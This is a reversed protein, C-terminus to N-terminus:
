KPGETTQIWKRIFALARMESWYRGEHNFNVFGVHGGYRKIELTVDPNRRCEDVPYCGGALFPDDQANVILTPVRIHELWPRSSCKTWYDRAGAFGHIPATYRDDFQEFTRIRHYQADNLAEPYRHQKARIKLHLSKLFNKMYLANAPKALAAAADTLDCPASFMVACKVHEPVDGACRGLYLLSLNAGMSFGVLVITEYTGVSVARAIVHHLDDTVGNHYMRLLRNPEGSCGRYNWALGDVKISNLARVMGLMYPRHTNGELGHSLIALTRGGVCSWDLDLFDGDRTDIRERTYSIDTIKRFLSPFITQLHGNRLLIPPHYSHCLHQSAHTHVDM